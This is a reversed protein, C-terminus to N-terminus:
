GVILVHCASAGCHACARVQCVSAEEVIKVEFSSMAQGGTNAYLQLYFTSGARMTEAPTRGSEDSTMYAAIGPSSISQSFWNPTGYVTFAATKISGGDLTASVSANSGSASAIDFWENPVTVFFRRTYEEDDPGRMRYSTLSLPTAAGDLTASISLPPPSIVDSNGFEDYCQVLLALKPTNPHVEPTQVLVAHSAAARPNQTYSTRPLM